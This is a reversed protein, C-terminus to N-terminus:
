GCMWEFVELLSWVDTSVLEAFLWLLLVWDCGVTVLSGMCDDLVVWGEALRVWYGGGGCEAPERDEGVM